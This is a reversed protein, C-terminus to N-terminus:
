PTVRADWEERDKTERKMVSIVRTIRGVAVGATSVLEYGNAHQENLWKEIKDPHDLNSVIYVKDSM